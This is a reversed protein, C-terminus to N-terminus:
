FSQKMWSFEFPGGSAIVFGGLLSLIEVLSRQNGKLM